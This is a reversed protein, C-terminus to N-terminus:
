IARCLKTYRDIPRLVCCDNKFSIMISTDCIDKQYVTPNQKISKKLAKNVIPDDQLGIPKYNISKELAVLKATDSPNHYSAKIFFLNILVM